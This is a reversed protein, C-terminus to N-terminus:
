GRLRIIEPRTGVVTMVKLMPTSRRPQRHRPLHGPDPDFLEDSWFQTVLEDDGTNTINHVWMTPMDVVGANAGDGRLDVVEDHVDPAASRRRGASVVFREVKRLHYHEGRTVGPETTSVFTQGEGGRTRVTEVFTGRCRTHPM